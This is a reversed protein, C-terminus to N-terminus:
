NGNIIENFKEEAKAIIAAQAPKTAANKAKRFVPQKHMFSTGSNISRAIERIPKRKGNIVAYGSAGTVGVVTDVESGNRSFKAIGIKGELAAKEEPTPWRAPTKAPPQNKKRQPEAYISSVARTLADAVVGAGDYLAASATEEAKNGLAALMASVDDLGETNMTMAM